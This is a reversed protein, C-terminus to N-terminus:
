AARRRGPPLDHPWPGGPPKLLVDSLRDFLRTSSPRLDFRDAREVRFGLVELEAQVADDVGWRRPGHYACRCRFAGSM